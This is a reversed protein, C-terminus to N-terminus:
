PFIANKRWILTKILSNIERIKKLTIAYNGWRTNWLSSKVYFRLPHFIWLNECLLHAILKIVKKWNKGSRCSGYASCLVSQLVFFVFLDLHCYLGSAEPLAQHGPAHKPQGLGDQLCTNPWVIMPSRHQDFSRTIPVPTHQHLFM